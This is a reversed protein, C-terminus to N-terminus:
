QCIVGYKNAVCIQRPGTGARFGPDSHISWLGFITRYCGQGDVLDCEEQIRAIGCGTCLTLIGVLLLAKM